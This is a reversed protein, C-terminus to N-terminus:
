RATESRAATTAATGTVDTRADRDGDATVVPDLSAHASPRHYRAAAVDAVTLLATAAATPATLFGSSFRPNAAGGVPIAGGPTGLALTRGATSDRLASPRLYAYTQMLQSM